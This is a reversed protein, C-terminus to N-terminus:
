MIICGTLPRKLKKSGRDSDWSFRSAPLGGATTTPTPTQVKREPKPARRTLPPRSPRGYSIDHDFQRIDEVGFFESAKGELPPRYALNNRVAPIYQSLTQEQYTQLRSTPMTKKRTTTLCTSRQVIENENSEIRSCAFTKVAQHRRTEIRTRLDPM